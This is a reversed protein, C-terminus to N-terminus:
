HVIDSISGCIHIQKLKDRLSEDNIIQDVHTVTEKAVGNKEIDCLRYMYYTDPPNKLMLNASLVAGSTATLLVKDEFDYAFMLAEFPISSNKDVHFGEDTYITRTDRPHMKILLNDMGVLESIKKVLEFEGISEGGEFDYVSTFFIYKEKYVNISNDGIFTAVIVKGVESDKDILAVKKPILEGKYLQPYFCYFGCIKSLIDWKRILGRFYYLIRNVRGFPTLLVIKDIPFNYSLVGEEFKYAVISRNKKYLRSSILYTSKALNYFLIEDFRKVEIDSLVKDVKDSGEFTKRSSFTYDMNKTEVYHVEEFYRSKKLRLCVEYTNKSHDSLFLVVYDDRYRTKKLQMAFILQYYTNCICLIKKM